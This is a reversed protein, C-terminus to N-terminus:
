TWTEPTVSAAPVTPWQQRNNGSLDTKNVLFVHGTADEVLQQYIGPSNDYGADTPVADRMISVTEGNYTKLIIAM